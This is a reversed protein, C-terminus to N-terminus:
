ADDPRGPHLLLDVEDIVVETVVGAALGDIRLGDIAEGLGDPGALRATHRARVAAALRRELATHLVARPDIYAAGVRPPDVAVSITALVRVDQGDASRTRVVIAIEIPGTPWELVEHIGPVALTTAGSAIRVIRRHRTVVLCEDRRARRLLSAVVLGVAIAAIVLVTAMEGM